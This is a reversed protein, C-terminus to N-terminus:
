KPYKYGIVLQKIVKNNPTYGYFERKPQIISIHFCQLIGTCAINACYKLPMELLLGRMDRVANSVQM